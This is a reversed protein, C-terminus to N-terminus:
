GGIIQDKCYTGVIKKELFIYRGQGVGGFSGINCILGSDVIIGSVFGDVLELFLHFPQSLLQGSSILMNLHKRRHLMLMMRLTLDERLILDIDTGHPSPLALPLSSNNSILSKRLPQNLTDIHDPLKEFTILLQPLFQLHGVLSVILFINFYKLDGLFVLSELFFCLSVLRHVLGRGRVALGGDPGGGGHGFFSM